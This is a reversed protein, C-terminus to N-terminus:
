TKITELEQFYTYLKKTIDEELEITKFDEILM